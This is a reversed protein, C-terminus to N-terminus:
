RSAALADGLIDAAEELEADAITLPPA